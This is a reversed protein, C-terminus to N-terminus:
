AILFQMSINYFEEQNSLLAPHRGQKFLHIDGHNIKKVMDGYVEEFYTPSVTSVFEDELSGTFLIDSTLTSLEKHFFNKINKAHNCLAQTDNDVVSEWDDGQMYTYFLVADPDLKSQERDEVITDTIASIAKEGEFSDAIVKHVLEPSELAVNIAVLAGGSTGIINVRQYQKEKLLAIVQQAEYFWLDAPFVALRDSKGHGLFDILIIKFDQKYRELLETFMLSSATNGHLFILPSGEGIERYYVQKNDFTFYSM